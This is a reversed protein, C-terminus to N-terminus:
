LSIHIHHTSTSLCRYIIYCYHFSVWVMWIYIHNNYIPCSGFEFTRGELLLGHDSDYLYGYGFWLEFVRVMSIARGISLYFDSYGYRRPM